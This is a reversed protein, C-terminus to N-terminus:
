VLLLKVRLFDQKKKLCKTVTEPLLKKVAQSIWIVADLVSIAKTLKSASSMSDMSFLLSHMLLKRYQVKINQIVGQDMPQSLSTTNPPFWALKVNSLQIHPHCTANDLFLLVHRKQRKMRGNFAMLWEEMIQSTMWSKRNSRWEVPLKQLDMNKFCRAAKGIVLPKEMEGSMFGCLFVTLREKCLKGGSCKEGKLCLSKNPLARFFLGTEDGNAINEPEYGDIISPM